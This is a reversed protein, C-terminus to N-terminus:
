KVKESAGTILDVQHVSKYAHVSRFSDRGGGVGLLVTTMDKPDIVTDVSEGSNLPMTFAIETVGEAETGSVATANNTGGSKKDSKHARETHGVHDTVKAKGNKVYGMIFNGGKMMTVPNFGVAVWGTTEGRLKVHLLEGDVRWSFAVPGDELTHSYEMALGLSSFVGVFFLLVVVQFGKKM